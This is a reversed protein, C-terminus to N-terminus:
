EESVIVNDLSGSTMKSIKIGVYTAVFAYILLTVIGGVKSTQESGNGGKITFTIQHGFM